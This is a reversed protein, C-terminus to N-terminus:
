SGEGLRFNITFRTEIETPEGNLLYPRYRAALVAQLAAEQLMAPGSVVHAGEVRGAKSIVAEVVVTGQTRALAALHPYTPRIPALLMGAGVGSSVRLRQASGHAANNELSVPRGPGSALIAGPLQSGAGMQLPLAPGVAASPESIAPGAVILASRSTPPTFIAPQTPIARSAVATAVRVQLPKQRHLQLLPLPKLAAPLLLSEPRLMPLLVILTAVAVQLVLSGATLWRTTQSDADVRNMVLSDEFM